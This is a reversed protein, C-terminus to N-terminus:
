FINWIVNFFSCITIITSARIRIIINRTWVTLFFYRYSSSMYEVMRYRQFPRRPYFKERVLSLSGDQCPPEASSNLAVWSSYSFQFFGVTIPGYLTYLIVAPSRVVTYPFKSTTTFTALCGAAFLNKFSPRSVSLLTRPSVNKLLSNGVGM